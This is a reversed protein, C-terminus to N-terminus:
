DLKSLRKQVADTVDVAKSAHIVGDTLLLDFDQEKALARIAEVIRRQLKGLEENRRINFDESFEQQDRKLDRQKALIDRELKRKESESMVAGDRTLREELQKIDEQIALLKKDRPSFEQELRKKAQEAQPAKELVKPINVFGIKLEALVQPAFMFVSLLLVLKKMM